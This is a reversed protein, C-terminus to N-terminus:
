YSTQYSIVHVTLSSLIWGQKVSGNEIALELKNGDYVRYALFTASNSGTQLSYLFGDQGNSPTVTM